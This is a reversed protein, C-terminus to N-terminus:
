YHGSGTLNMIHRDVPHGDLGYSDYCVKGATAIINEAPTEHPPLQYKPHAIFGPQSLVRVAPATIIKVTGERARRQRDRPQPVVAGEESRRSHQEQVRLSRHIEGRERALIRAEM